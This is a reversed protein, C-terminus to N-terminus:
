KTFEAINIYVGPEKNDLSVVTLENRKKNVKLIKARPSNNYYILNQNIAFVKSGSDFSLMDGEGIKFGRDWQWTNDKIYNIDRQTVRSSKCATIALLIIALFFTKM